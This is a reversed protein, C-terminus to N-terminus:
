NNKRNRISLEGKNIASEWMKGWKSKDAKSKVENLKKTLDKKM